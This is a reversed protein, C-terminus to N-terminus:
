KFRYKLYTQNKTIGVVPLNQIPKESVTNSIYAHKCGPTRITAEDGQTGQKPQQM